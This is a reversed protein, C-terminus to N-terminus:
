EEISEIDHLISNVRNQYTHDKLVKNYGRKAIKKREDTNNLFYDIKSLLENTDRYLEIESGIDFLGDLSSKYDVLEFAGAGLIEFTRPNLGDVSQPHHINICIKSTNYIANITPSSVYYNNICSGLNKRKFKYEYILKPNYWTWSKGWIQINLNKYKTTIEELIKKRFPYGNLNGIFCIDIEVKRSELKHYLNPDYGMPLFKPNKAYKKLEPIDSPEYTYFLDYYKAGNLVNSYRLASDYCWIAHFSNTNEKIYKVTEPFLIDGKLTFVLDPKFTQIQEILLKNYNAILDKKFIYIANTSDFNTYIKNYALVKLNYLVNETLDPWNSIIIEHGFKQFGQGIMDNYNHFNPGNILIRM